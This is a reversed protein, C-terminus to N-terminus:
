KKRTYTIKVQNELKKLNYLSSWCYQKIMKIRGPNFNFNRMIQLKSLDWLSMHEQKKGYAKMIYNSFPSKLLTHTGGENGQM